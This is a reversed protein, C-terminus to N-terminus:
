RGSDWAKRRTLAPRAADAVGPRLGARLGTPMRNWWPRARDVMANQIVENM